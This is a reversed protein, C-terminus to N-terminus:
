INAVRFHCTNLQEPAFRPRGTQSMSGTNAQHQKARSQNIHKSYKLGEQGIRYLWLSQTIVGECHM